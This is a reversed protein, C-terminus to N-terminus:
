GDKAIGAYALYAAIVIATRGMGAHCHVLVRNGKNKSIHYDMQQVINM